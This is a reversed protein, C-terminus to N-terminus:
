QQSEEEFEEKMFITKISKKMYFSNTKIGDWIEAGGDWNYKKRNDTYFKKVTNISIKDKVLETKNWCNIIALYFMEKTEYLSKPFIYNYFNILSNSTVKYRPKKYGISHTEDFKKEEYPTVLNKNKNIDYLTFMFLYSDGNLKIILENFINQFMKRTKENNLISLSCNVFNFMMMLKNFLKEEDFQNMKRIKFGVLDSFLITKFEKLFNCKLNLEKNAKYMYKFLNMNEDFFIYNTKIDRVFHSKLSNSLDEKYISELLEDINDLYRFVRLQHIKDATYNSNLTDSLSLKVLYKLIELKNDETSDAFIEDIKQKFEECKYKDISFDSYFKELKDEEKIFYTLLFLSNSHYINISIYFNNNMIKMFEVSKQFDNLNM